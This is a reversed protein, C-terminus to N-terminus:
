RKRRVPKKKPAPEEEAVEDEELGELNVDVVDDDAEELADKLQSVEVMLREEEPSMKDGDTDVFFGGKQARGAHKTQKALHDERQAAELSELYGMVAEQVQEESMALLERATASFENADLWEDFGSPVDIQLVEKSLAQAKKKCKQKTLRTHLALLLTYGEVDEKDSMVDKTSARTILDGVASLPTKELGLLLEILCRPERDLHLLTVSMAESLAGQSVIAGWEILRRLVATMQKEFGPQGGAMSQRSLFGMLSILRVFRQGMTNEQLSSVSPDVKPESLAMAHDAEFATQLESVVKESPNMLTAMACLDATRGFKYDVNVTGKKAKKAKSQVLSECSLSLLDANCGSGVLYRIAIAEDAGQMLAEAREVMDEEFFNISGKKQVPVRKAKRKPSPKTPKEVAEKLQELLKRAHFTANKKLTTQFKSKPLADIANVLLVKVDYEVAKSKLLLDGIDGNEVLSKGLQAVFQEQKEHSMKRAKGLLLAELPPKRWWDAKATFGARIPGKIRNNTGSGM